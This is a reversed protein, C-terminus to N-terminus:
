APEPAARPAVLKQWRRLGGVCLWLFTAFLAAILPLGRSLYLPVSILDVSIWFLWTELARRNLLWQACLSLATILADLLPASGGLWRLATWLAFTLPPVAACLLALERASSRVVPSQESAHQASRWGLWGRVGLAIFVLQLCADAFLRQGYFVLGLIASNVVGVPFNWINARATLWVCGLGTVFGLVDGSSMPMGAVTWLPTILPSLWPAPGHM